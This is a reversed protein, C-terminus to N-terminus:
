RIRQRTHAHDDRADALRALHQRIARSTDHKFKSFAADDMELFFSPLMIIKIDAEYLDM